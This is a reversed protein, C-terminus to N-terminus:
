LKGMVSTVHCTHATTNQLSNGAMSKGLARNRLGSRMSLTMLLLFRLMHYSDATAAAAADVANVSIVAAAAAPAAAAPAAINHQNAHM